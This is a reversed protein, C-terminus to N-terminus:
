ECKARVNCKRGRQKFEFVWGDGGMGVVVGSVYVSVYVYMCVCM